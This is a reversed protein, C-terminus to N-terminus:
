MVVVARFRVKGQELRERATDIDDLRYTETFATVKGQASLALAEYLHERENHQSGIVRLRRAIMAGVPLPLPKREFGMVVLRGEPRLGQMAEIQAETSVSTGLVIDAGGAAALGNGDRVIEDAGLKRILSDKDPNRCLAITRFGAAKAYQIALHGLGGIGVVAIIDGPRPEASRLGSYATYGACFIPAAQEYSLGDPLLVTADALAIMLEAHSGPMHMSTGVSEACFIPKGRQCWECRGCAGQWLMVGVRDGVKRHHVGPGVAVIEGAPEHGLTKPFHGGFEGSSQRLDNHCIGSARVRVLVQNFGPEPDALTHVQWPQKAGSAIAARM